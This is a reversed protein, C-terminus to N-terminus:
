DDSESTSSKINHNKYVDYTENLHYDLSKNNKRSSYDAELIVSSDNNRKSLNKALHSSLSSAGKARDQDDSDDGDKEM